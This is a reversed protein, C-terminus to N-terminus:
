RSESATILERIRAFQFGLVRSITYLALVISSLLIGLAVERLPGLWAGWSAFAVADGAAGAAVGYGVFQAVALMMGVMMLGIFAKASAPMVLTNVPAGVSEQVEGGGARLGALITGLLFAIGSLVLGEGLFQVGQTWAWLQRFSASEAAQGATVGSLVLGAIVAMAGMALMPLWLLKAMTHIFLPKPATPTVSARGFPTSVGGPSAAPKAGAQPALVTLAAKVSDVRLWLRALIGVLVVAVGIKLVALGTTSVGFSWTLVQSARASDTALTNAVAINAALTAALIGLGVLGVVPGAVRQATPARYDVTPAPRKVWDIQVAMTAEMGPGGLRRGVRDITHHGPFCLCAGLANRLAAVIGASPFRHTKLDSRSSHRFSQKSHEFTETPNDTALRFV